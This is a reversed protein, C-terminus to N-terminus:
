VKLNPKKRTKKSGFVSEFPETDLIHVRMNKAKENLLSISLKTQQMVVQLNFTKNFFSSELCNFPCFRFIKLYNLCVPPLLNM